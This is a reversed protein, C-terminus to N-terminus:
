KIERKQFLIFGLVGCLVAIFANFCANFIYITSQASDAKLIYDIVDDPNQLVIFAIIVSVILTIGFFGCAVIVATNKQMILSIFTALSSAMILGLLGLGISKLIQITLDEETTGFGVMIYNLFLSVFVSYVIFCLYFVFTAIFNSCYVQTRTKGCILKNRLFGSKRDRDLLIGGMILIVLGFDSTLSCNTSIIEAPTSLFQDAIFGFGNRDVMNTELLVILVSLFPLVFGVILLVITIKSKFFRLLDVKLLELM